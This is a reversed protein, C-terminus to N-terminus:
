NIDKLFDARVPSFVDIAIGKEICSLGHVMDPEVCYGDGASLIRKQGDILVEFKGSCIYTSQSHYHQHVAGVAGAEFEVKVLMIHPDYGLIQRRIGEGCVEWAVENQPLFDKSKTKM